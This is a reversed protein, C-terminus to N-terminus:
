PLVPKSKPRSRHWGVFARKAEVVTYPKPAITVVPKDTSVAPESRSVAPEDSSEGFIVIMAVAAALLLFAQQYWRLKM